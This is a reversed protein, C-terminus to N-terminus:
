QVGTTMYSSIICGALGVGIGAFTLVSFQGFGGASLSNLFMILIALVYFLILAVLRKKILGYLKRFLRLLCFLITLAAVTMFAYYQLILFVFPYVFRDNSLVVFLDQRAGIIMLIAGVIGILAYLNLDRISM